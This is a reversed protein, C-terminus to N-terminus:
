LFNKLSGYGDAEDENGVTSPANHQGLATFHVVLFHLDFGQCSTAAPAAWSPAGRTIMTVHSQTGGFVCCGCGTSTLASMSEKGRGKVKYVWERYRCACVYCDGRTIVFPVCIREAKWRSEKPRTQTQWKVNLATRSGCMRQIKVAM